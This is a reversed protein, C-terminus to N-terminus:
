AHPGAPMDCWHTVKHRIVGGTACEVWDGGTHYGFLVPENADPHLAILVTMEDDPMDEAVPLWTLSEFAPATEVFRQPM